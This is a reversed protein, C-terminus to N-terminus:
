TKIFELLKLANNENRSNIMVKLEDAKDLIEILKDNQKSLSYISIFATTKNQWVLMKVNKLDLDM